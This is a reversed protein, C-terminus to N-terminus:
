QILSIPQVWPLLLSLVQQPTSRQLQRIAAAGHVVPQEMAATHQQHVLVFRRHAPSLGQLLMQIVTLTKFSSAGGM